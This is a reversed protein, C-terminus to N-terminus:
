FSLCMTFGLCSALFGIQCSGSSSHWLLYHSGGRGWPQPESKPVANDRLGMPICLSQLDVGGRPFLVWAGSISEQVLCHQSPIIFGVSGLTKGGAGVVVNLHFSLWSCPLGRTFYIWRLCVVLVLMLQVKGQEEESCLEGCSIQRRKHESSSSCLNSM